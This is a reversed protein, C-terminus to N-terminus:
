PAPQCTWRSSRPRESALSPGTCTPPQDSCVGAGAQCARQVSSVGFYWSVATPQHGVFRRLRIMTGTGCSTRWRRAEAFPSSPLSRPSSTRLAATRRDTCGQSTAGQLSDGLRVQGDAQRVGPSHPGPRPRDSHGALAPWVPGNGSRATFDPYPAGAYPGQWSRAVCGQQSRPSSARGAAEHGVYESASWSLASTPTLRSSSSSSAWWIIVRAPPPTRSCRSGGTKPAIREPLDQARRHIVRHQVAQGM